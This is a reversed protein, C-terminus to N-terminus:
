MGMLTNGLKFMPLYMSILIVAVMVGILIILLPELMSSLLNMQHDVDESYQDYLRKFVKDLQNTEEGVKILSVMRSEFVPFQIMSENLTKGHYIEKQMTSLATEVPYFRIMKRVLDLATILPTRASTMLALSQCFRALYVKQLLAGLVPIKLLLYSTTKRFGDRNRFYNYGLILAVIVIPLFFWYDRFIESIRIVGKTLAPLDSNFRLFADAFLPVIFNMMFFVAGFATLFILAPYSFASMLQKQQRLKKRYYLTLEDLVEVFRGSEEGIKLSYYEYVGFEKNNYIAGSFSAGNLIKQSIEKYIAKIKAKRQEQIIIELSAKVDLGSSILVSLESYFEEKKKDPITKGFSIDKKWFSADVKKQSTKGSNDSQKHQKIETLKISM